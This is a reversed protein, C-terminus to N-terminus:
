SVIDFMKKNTDTGPLKGNFVSFCLNFTERLDYVIIKAFEIM